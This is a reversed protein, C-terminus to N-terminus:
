VAAYDRGAHTRPMLGRFSEFMATCTHDYDLLYPVLLNHMEALPLLSRDAAGVVSDGGFVLNDFTTDQTPWSLGWYRGARSDLNLRQEPGGWHTMTHNRVRRLIEVYAPRKPRKAMALKEGVISPLRSIETFLIQYGNELLFFNHVYSFLCLIYRPLVADLVEQHHAMAHADGTEWAVPNAACTARWDAQALELAKWLVPLQSPMTGPLVWTAKASIDTVRVPRLYALRIEAKPRSVRSILM